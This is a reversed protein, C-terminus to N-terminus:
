RRFHTGLADKWCFKDALNEIVRVRLIDDSPSCHTQNVNRTGTLISVGKESLNSPPEAGEGVIRHKPFVQM